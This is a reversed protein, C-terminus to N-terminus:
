ELGVLWLGLRDPEEPSVPALFAVLAGDPSISPSTEPEQGGGTLYRGSKTVSDLLRIRSAGGRPGEAMVFEETSGRRAVSVEDEDHTRLLPAPDKGDADMAYADWGGDPLRRQFYIHRGDASWSPARDDAGRTLQELNAGNLGIRWVTGGTPKKQRDDNVEFAIWEGDPSLAPAVLDEKGDHTTLRREDQGDLGACWIESVGRADPSAYCLSAAERHAPRHGSTARRRTGDFVATSSASAVDVLLVKWSEQKGATATASVVVTRGDIFAAAYAREGAEPAWLLRAGDARALLGELRPDIRKPEEPAPAQPPAPEIVINELSRAAAERRAVLVHYGTVGAAGLLIAVIIIALYFRM